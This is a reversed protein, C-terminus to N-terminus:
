NDWPQLIRPEGGAETIQCSKPSFGHAGGSLTSKTWPCVHLPKESIASERFGLAKFTTGSEGGCSEVVAELGFCVSCYVCVCVCVCV